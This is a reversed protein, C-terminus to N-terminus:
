WRRIKVRGAAYGSYGMARAELGHARCRQQLAEWASSDFCAGPHSITSAEFARMSNPAEARFVSLVLRFRSNDWRLTRTAQNSYVITMGENDLLLERAPPRIGQIAFCLAALGIGVTAGLGLVAIYFVPSTWTPPTVLPVFVLSFSLFLAAMAFLGAVGMRVQSRTSDAQIVRTLDHRSEPIGM